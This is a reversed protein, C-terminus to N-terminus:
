TVLAKDHIATMVDNELVDRTKRATSIELSKAKAVFDKWELKKLDALTTATVGPNISETEVGMDVRIMDLYQSNIKLQDYM